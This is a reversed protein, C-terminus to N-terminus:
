RLEEILRARPDPWDWVIKERDLFTPDAARM